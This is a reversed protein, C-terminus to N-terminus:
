FINDVEDRFRKNGTNRIDPNPLLFVPYVDKLTDKYIPELNMDM